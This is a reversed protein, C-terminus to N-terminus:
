ICVPTKTSSQARLKEFDLNTDPDENNENPIMRRNRDVM